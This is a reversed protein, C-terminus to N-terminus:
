EALGSSGHKRWLREDPEDSVTGHSNYFGPMLLKATGNYIDGYSKEPMDKGIYDIRNGQVGVYMNEKIEFNEDLITINKFLM